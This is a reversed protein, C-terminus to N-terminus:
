EFVVDTLDLPTPDQEGAVFQKRGFGRCVGGDMEEFSTGQGLRLSDDNSRRSDAYLVPTFGRQACGDRLFLQCPAWLLDRPRVPDPLVVQLSQLQEFPAWFYDSGVFVELFSRTVDDADAFDDFAEGNLSGAVAPREEDSRDLLTKAESGNGEKLRCIAQLSLELRAPPDVFFKPRLANELVQRRTEEAKLLNLYAPADSQTTQADIATLQKRAREYDGAFCLLAFLLTRRSREAPYDKVEQIAAAIADDLQGARYLESATM